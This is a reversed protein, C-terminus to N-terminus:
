LTENPAEDTHTASLHQIRAALRETRMTLEDVDNLFDDIAYPHPALECEDHLYDDTNRMFSRLSHKLSSKATAIFQSLRYATADGLCHSSLEEWDISLADFVHMLEQAFTADGSLTVDDAFFRHRADSNTLALAALQLPTGTITAQVNAPPTDTLVLANDKCEGYLTINFPQLTLAFAKGALKHLRHKSHPDAHLYTDLGLNLAKLAADKIM